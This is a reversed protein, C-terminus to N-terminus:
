SVMTLGARCRVTASNTDRGGGLTVSLPPGQRVGNCQVSISQGVSVTGPQFDFAYCSDVGACSTDRSSILRGSGDFVRLRANLTVREGRAYYTSIRGTGGATCYRTPGSQTSGSCTNRTTTCGDVFYAWAGYQGLIGRKYPTDCVHNTSNPPVYMGDGFHHRANPDDAAATGATAGFAAITAAVAALSAITKRM